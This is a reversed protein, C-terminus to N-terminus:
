RRDPALIQEIVWCGRYHPKEARCHELIEPDECDADQLADALIPMASFDRSEYMGQAMAVVTSTRWKADFTVTIEPYILIDRAVECQAAEATALGSTRLREYDTMEQSLHDYAVRVPDAESRQLLAPSCRRGQSHRLERAVTARYPELEPPLPFSLLERTPHDRNSVVTRCHVAGTAVARFLNPVSNQRAALLIPNIVQFFPLESASALFERIPALKRTATSGREITEVVEQLSEPLMEWIQRAVGTAILLLQRTTLDKNANVQEEFRGIQEWLQRARSPPPCHECKRGNWAFSFGCRPCRPSRM